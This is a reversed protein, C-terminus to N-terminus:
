HGFGQEVRGTRATTTKCAPAVSRIFSHFCVSLIIEGKLSGPREKQMERTSGVPLVRLLYHSIGAPTNGQYLCSTISGRPIRRKWLGERIQQCPSFSWM